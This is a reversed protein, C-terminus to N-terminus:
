VENASVYIYVIYIYNGILLKIYVNSYLKLYMLRRVLMVIEMQSPPQSSSRIRVYPSYQTRLPCVIFFLCLFTGYHPLWIKGVLKDWLWSYFYGPKWVRRSTSRICQIWCMSFRNETSSVDDEVKKLMDSPKAVNHNKVHMMWMYCYINSKWFQSANM